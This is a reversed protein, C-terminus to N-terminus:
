KLAQLVTMRERFIIQMHESVDPFETLIALLSDRDLSVCAVPTVAKITATRPIDAMLAMEGFYSGEDLVGVKRADVHISVTGEMIFFMNNGHSGQEFIKEGPYFFCEKLHLAIQGFLFSDRGDDVTRNLFPLNRLLHECNELLIAQRLPPNLGALIGAEDFVKGRYKWSFYKRTRDALKGTLLKVRIYENVQDVKQTFKGSPSEFGVSFFAAILGTLAASLIGGITILFLLVFKQTPRDPVFSSTVVFTNAVGAWVGVAYQGSFTNALVSADNWLHDSFGYKRGGWFLLCAQGHIYVIMLFLFLIISMFSVGVGIFSRFKASIVKFGPNKLLKPLRHLRLLRLCLLLTLDSPKDPVLYTVIFPMTDNITLNRDMIESPTKFFGEGGGSGISNTQRTFQYTLIKWIVPIIGIREREYMRREMTPYYEDGMTTANYISGPITKIFTGNESYQFATFDTLHPEVPLLIVDFPILSILDYIFARSSFYDYISARLSLLMTSELKDYRLVTIVTDWLSKFRGQPNIFRSCTKKFYDSFAAMLYVETPKDDDNEEEDSLQSEVGDHSMGRDDGRPMSFASMNVNAQSESWKFAVYRFESVDDPFLSRRRRRPQGDEDVYEDSRMDNIDESGLYEDSGMYEGDSGDSYEYDDQDTGEGSTPDDSEDDSVDPKSRLFSQSNRGSHFVQQRLQMALMDVRTSNENLQQLNNNNDGNSPPQSTGAGPVEEERPKGNNQVEEEPSAKRTAEVKAHDGTEDVGDKNVPVARQDVPETDTKAVQNSQLMGTAELESRALREKKEKEKAKDFVLAILETQQIMNELVRSQYSISDCMTSITQVITMLKQETMANVAVAKDLSDFSGSLPSPIATDGVALEDNSESSVHVIRALPSTAKQLKSPPSPEVVHDPGEGRTPKGALSLASTTDSNEAIQFFSSSTSVIISPFAPAKASQRLPSTLFAAVNLHPSKPVPNPASSEQKPDPEGKKDSM